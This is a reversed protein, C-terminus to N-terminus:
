RLSDLLLRAERLDVTEFGETFSEYVPALLDLARRRERQGAWLRGLSVAARLEWLKARQSRAMDLAREFCRVANAASDTKDRVLLEGRVRWLEPECIVEGSECCFAIAKDVVRHAEQLQKSAGLSEALPVTFFPRFSWYKAADM